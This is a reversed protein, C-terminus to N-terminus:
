KKLQRIRNELLVDALLVKKGLGITFIVIGKAFNDPQFSRNEKDEFQPM